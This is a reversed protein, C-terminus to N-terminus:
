MRIIDDDDVIEKHWIILNKMEPRLVRWTLTQSFYSHMYLAIKNEWNCEYKQVRWVFAWFINEPRYEAWFSVQIFESTKVVDAEFYMNKVGFMEISSKVWVLFKTTHYKLSATISSTM